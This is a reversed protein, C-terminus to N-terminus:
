HSFLESLYRVFEVIGYISFGFFVVSIIVYPTMSKKANQCKSCKKGQQNDVKDM